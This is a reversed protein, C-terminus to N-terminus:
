MKVAHFVKAKASFAEMENMFVKRPTHFSKENM